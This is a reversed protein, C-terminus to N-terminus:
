AHAATQQAMQAPPEAPQALYDLGGLLALTLMAALGLSLSRQILSPSM